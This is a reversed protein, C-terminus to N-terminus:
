FFRQYEISWRGKERGFRSIQLTEGVRGEAIFTLTDGSDLTLVLRDEAEADAEVVRRRVLQYFDFVPPPQIDFRFHRIGGSGAKKVEFQFASRIEAGRDFVFRVEFPDLVIQIIESDRLFELDRSLVEDGHLSRM